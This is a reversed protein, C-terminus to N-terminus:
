VQTANEQKKRSPQHYRNYVTYKSGTKGTKIMHMGILREAVGDRVDIVPVSVLQGWKNKTQRYHSLSKGTATPVGETILSNM